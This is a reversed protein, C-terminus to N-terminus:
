RACPRARAGGGDASPRSSASCTGPSPSVRPMLRLAGLPGAAPQQRRLALTEGRDESVYVNGTTSGFCVRDGSADLAHRYVVDYGHEQPLGERFSQWSAGGDSTRAVFLGGGITM